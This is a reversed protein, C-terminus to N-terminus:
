WSAEELLGRGPFGRERQESAWEQVWTLRDVRVDRSLLKGGTIRIDPGGSVQLCQPCVTVM